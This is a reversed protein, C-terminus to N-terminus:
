LACTQATASCRARMLEYNDLVQTFPPSEKTYLTTQKSKQVLEYYEESTIKGLHYMKKLKKKENNYCQQEQRILKNNVKDRILYLWYALQIRGTLFPTIPLEKYFQKYSERCFVCPMVFGLSKLLNSFHNRIATHESNSPDIRIPYGGMICAFLFAWGSPGWLKTALGSSSKYKNVDIELQKLTDM